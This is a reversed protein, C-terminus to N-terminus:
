QEAVLRKQIDSYLRAATDTEVGTEKGMRIITGGFLEGENKQKGIEVDRQYSTKVHNGMGKAIDMTKEAADKPLKVGIKGAIAMIESIVAEAMAKLEHNECVERISKESWATVLAFSAIFLYKEWISDSADDKFSCNIGMEELFAKLEELDYDRNGPDRGSVIRAYDSDQTVQGLGELHAGIYVCSPLVVCGKFKKRIREYIDVGNLLPIIVTDEKVNKAISDLADDLDYGKVCLFILDPAPIETFDQAALAPKCILGSYGPINLLLGESKIMALHAGRAIFYVQYGSDSKEEITKAIKGGFVGGIGGVGYICINEIRKKGAM